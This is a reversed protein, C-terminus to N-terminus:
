HGTHVGAPSLLHIQVLDEDGGDVVALEDALVLWVPERDDSLQWDDLQWPLKLQEHQNLM